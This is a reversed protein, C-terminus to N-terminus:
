NLKQKFRGCVEREIGDGVLLLGAGAGADVGAGVDEMLWFMSSIKFWFRVGVDRM